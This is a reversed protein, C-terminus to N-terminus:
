YPAGGCARASGVFRGFGRRDGCDQEDHHEDLKADQHGTEARKPPTACFKAGCIICRM